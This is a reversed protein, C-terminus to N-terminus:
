DNTKEIIYDVSEPTYSYSKLYDPYSEITVPLKESNKKTDNYNVTVKFLEPIVNEYNSLGVLYKIQVHRPFIRLLISDPCNVVSIEKRLKGETFQEVPININVSTESYEIEPHIRKLEVKASFTNTIVGINRQQTPVANITDIITNPGSIVISDPEIDVNNKLMLQQGLDYEIASVIPVKKQVKEAFQFHLTDPTIDVINIESGLEQIITSQLTHTLLYYRSDDQKNLNASSIRIELPIINKSIQYELIKFGTGEIELELQDPLEEAIIKDSPAETYKVPYSIKTVYVNELENLFWFITSVVLFFLFVGVNRSYRLKKFVVSFKTYINSLKSNM